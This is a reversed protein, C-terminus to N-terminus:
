KTAYWEFVGSAPAVYVGPKSVSSIGSPTRAGVMTVGADIGTAVGIAIHKGMQVWNGTDELTVFTLTGSLLSFRDHALTLTDQLTLGPFLATYTGALGTPTGDALPTVKAAARPASAPADGTRPASWSFSGLGKVGFKGVIGADTVHGILVIGEHHMTSSAIQMAITRGQIVWDGYDGFDVFEFTGGQTSAAMATIVLPSSQHTLPFTAAYTGAAGVPAHAAPARGAALRASTASAGSAGIVSAGAAAVAVLAVLARSHQRGM